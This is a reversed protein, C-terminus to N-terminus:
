AAIEMRVTATVPSPRPGCLGPTVEFEAEYVGATAYVHQMTFTADGPEPPPPDWAGYRPPDGSCEVRCHTDVGEGFTYQMCPRDASSIRSDPDTVHLTFTVLDGARPIPPTTTVTITAPANTMPPDYYMPGCAPDASNRCSPVTTPVARTTTTTDPVSDNVAVQGPDDDARVIAFTAVPVLVVLAMATSLAAIRRRRLARGRTRVRAFLADRRPELEPPLQEM